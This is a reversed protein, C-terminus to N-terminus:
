LILKNLSIQKNSVLSFSLDLMDLEDLDLLVPTIWQVLFFSGRALHVLLLIRFVLFINAM